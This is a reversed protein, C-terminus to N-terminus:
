KKFTCLILVPNDNESLSDALKQLEKKKVPYKPTSNKFADSAVHEKLQYADVWMAMTSDNVSVKPYFNPGGDFDNFLGTNILANDTKEPTAFVLEHSAKNFVGLMNVTYFSSTVGYEKLFVPTPRKV